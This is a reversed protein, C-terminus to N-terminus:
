SPDARLIFQREDHLGVRVALQGADNISISM